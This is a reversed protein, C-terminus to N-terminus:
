KWVRSRIKHHKVNLNNNTFHAIYRRCTYEVRKLM